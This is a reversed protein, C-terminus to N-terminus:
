ITAMTESAAPSAPDIVGKDGRWFRWWAIARAIGQRLSTQPMFGILRQARGIDAVYYGIEGSLSPLYDIVPSKELAEGIYHALEMLSHGEGYALNITQNAEGGNLLLEVGRWLGDVCDDIYTFDLIKGSGYLTVPEGTDINSIFLPVVRELRQLDCDYRGYVNSLRFILYRLGYCHSYAHIFSEVAIKGAAYPSATRRFDVSAEDFADTALNGYVERSSSFILPLRHYRCFELVAHAMVVNACAHEPEIVSRHVKASAALHVVLDVRDPVHPLLSAGSCGDQLLDCLITPFADTWPNPRIDLGVVEDGEACLRLGLNTGIQGSSGTILVRHPKM